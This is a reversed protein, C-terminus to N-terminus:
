RRAGFITIGGARYRGWLATLAGAFAFAFSVASEAQEAVFPVGAMQFLYGLGAVIVGTYTLSYGM